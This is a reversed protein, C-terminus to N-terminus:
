KGPPLESVFPPKRGLLMHSITSAMLDTSLSRVQVSSVKGDPGTVTFRSSRKSDAYLLADEMLKSSYRDQPHFRYEKGEPNRVIFDGDATKSWDPLFYDGTKDGSKPSLAALSETYTPHTEIQISPPRRYTESVFVLFGCVAIAGVAVLLREKIPTTM